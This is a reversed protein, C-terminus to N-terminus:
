EWDSPDGEYVYAPEEFTVQSKRTLRVPSSVRDIIGKRALWEYIWFLGRSQVKKSFHADLESATRMGEAEGLYDLVPAFLREAREELYGNIRDLAEQLTERDKPGDILDAYVAGFFSPNFKLAQHIVERGPAEGNLVVEVRALQNVVYMIWVFSYHMDDKVYFWKEAKDLTPIVEAAVRMLQFGQDRAGIRSSEGIWAAISEDKCFLLKAHSRIAHTISGQLAGDMLRKFRSRPVIDASINIGDVDLWRFRALHELGDRMVIELDVDSREWAEGRAVSGYVLAALVYYDQELDAALADLADQYRHQVDAKTEM